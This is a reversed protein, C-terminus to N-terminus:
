ITSDKLGDSNRLCELKKVLESIEEKKSLYVTRDKARKTVRDKSWWDHYDENGLYHAHNLIIDQIFYIRDLNFGLDQFWLDLYEHCIDELCMFGLVDVMKKSVLPFAYQVAKKVGPFGVFLMDKPLSAKLLVDWDRTEFIVDDMGFMLIDGSAIKALENLKESTKTFKTPILQLELMKRYRHLYEENEEISFLIEIKDPNFANCMASHFLRVAGEPRNKTPCLISIKTNFDLGLDVDQKEIFWKDNELIWTNFPSFQKALLHYKKASSFNNLRWDCIALWELPKYTRNPVIDFVVDHKVSKDLNLAGVFYQKALTFDKDDHAKKGLILYPEPIGCGQSVLQKLLKNGEETKGAFDLSEALNYLALENKPEIKVVKKFVKIAEEIKGTGRLERGYYLLDRSNKKKKKKLIRLNRNPEKDILPAHIIKIQDSFVTINNTLPLPYLLEHVEGKWVYRDRKVARLRKYQIFPVTSSDNTQQSYLLHLGDVKEECFLAEVLNRFVVPSGEILDDADMWVLIDGTSKSFAYNRAKSFDDEWKFDFVKAGLKKAIEKTKDISGTDVIVLEDYFGKFSTICRELVDEENKVILCLSIM